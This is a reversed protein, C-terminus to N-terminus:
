QERALGPLFYFVEKQESIALSLAKIYEERTCPYDMQHSIYGFLEKYKKNLPQCLKGFKYIDM